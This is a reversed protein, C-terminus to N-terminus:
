FTHYLDDDDDNGAVGDKPLLSAALDASSSGGNGGMDLLGEFHVSRRVGPSLRVQGEESSADFVTQPPVRGAMPTLPRAQQGQVDDGSSESSQDDEGDDEKCHGAKAASSSLGVIRASPPVSARSRSAQSSPVVEEMRGHKTAPMSARTSPVIRPATPISSCAAQEYAFDAEQEEVDEDDDQEEDNEVSNAQLAAARTSTLAPVSARPRSAESAHLTGEMHVHRSAPMSARTNPVFAAYPKRTVPPIPPHVKLEANSAKLAPPRTSTPTVNQVAQMVPLSARSRPAQSSRLVEEMHVHKSAPMSARTTPVVRPAIPISSGAEQEYALDAEQEEVDQDDDEEEEEAEEEEDGKDEEYQDTRRAQPARPSRADALATNQPTRTAPMSSRSCSGHSASLANEMLMHRSPPMSARTNPVIRASPILSRADWELIGGADAEDEDDKEDDVNGANASLAPAMGFSSSLMNNIQEL